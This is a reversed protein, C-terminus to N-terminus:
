AAGLDFNAVLKRLSAIELTLRDITMGQRQAIGALTAATAQRMKSSECCSIGYSDCEHCEQSNGVGFAKLLATRTKADKM